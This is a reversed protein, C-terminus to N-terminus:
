RRFSLTHAGKGIAFREDGSFWASALDRLRRPAALGAPRRTANAVALRCRSHPGVLIPRQVRRGASAKWASDPKCTTDVDVREAIQRLFERGIKAADGCADFVRD